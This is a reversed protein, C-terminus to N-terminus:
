RAMEFEPPGRSIGGNADRRRRDALLAMRRRRASRSRSDMSPRFASADGFVPEPGCDNGRGLDPDLTSAFRGDVGVFDGPSPWGNRYETAVAGDDAAAHGCAAFKYPVRPPRTRSASTQSKKKRGAVLRAAAISGVAGEVCFRFIWTQQYCYCINAWGAKQDRTVSVKQVQRTESSDIVLRRGNRISRANGEASVSDKEGRIRQSDQVGEPFVVAGPDGPEADREAPRCSLRFRHAPDSSLLGEDARGELQMILGQFDNMTLTCRLVIEVLGFVALIRQKMISNRHKGQPEMMLGAFKHRKDSLVLKYASFSREVDVSTVPCFKFNPAMEASVEEPLIQGTGNIFANVKKIEELCPNKYLVANLKGRVKRISDNIFRAITSHNTKLVKCAVLHPTSPDKSLKGVILNAMYRGCSDTTEDASIWLLNNSLDARIESLVEEYIASLYNKRITSEEPIIKCFIVTGDTTFQGPYCKIRSEMLTQTNKKVPPMIEVCFRLYICRPRRCSFLQIAHPAYTFYVVLATRGEGRRADRERRASALRTGVSASRERHARATRALCIHLHTTHPRRRLVVRKVRMFVLILMSSQADDRALDTQAWLKYRESMRGTPSGHTIPTLPCDHDSCYSSFCFASLRLRWADLTM